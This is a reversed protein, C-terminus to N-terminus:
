EPTARVFEITPRLPVAVPMGRVTAATWRENQLAAGAAASLEPHSSVITVDKIAGDTEVRTELVV